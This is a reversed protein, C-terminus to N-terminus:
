LAEGFVRQKSCIKVTEGTLPHPFRLSAACLQQTPLGLRESLAASEPTGYQPDGLIPFGSFACHVRLQHTRGTRPHLELVSYANCRKLIRYDTRAAQGDECVTRLLRLMCERILASQERLTGGNASRIRSVVDAGYVVQPNLEGAAALENGSGDLLYCVVTTTGIDFAASLKGSGIPSRTLASATLVDIGDKKRVTVTMDHTVSVECSLVSAGDAEVTCKGCRGAGGCFAEPALGASRLLAYLNEGAEARLVVNAPRVLVKYEM